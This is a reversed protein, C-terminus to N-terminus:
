EKIFKKRSINNESIVEVFYVGSSLSSIDIDTKQNTSKSNFELEGLLNYIKIQTESINETLILTLYDSAPNPFIYFLTEDLQTNIGTPLASVVNVYVMSNDARLLFYSVCHTNTCGASDTITLCITYFGAAAYTHSPFPLTDNPSGDGWNWSYQLPPTGSAMNVAFYNHPITDPFLNFFASCSGVGVIVTDCDVCGYLDTVCVAYTGQTLGTATQTNQIPSTYWTYYYPPTGATVTATASGDNCLACTANVANATVAFGACNTSDVFVNANCATCGHGDTVCVTYTGSALGTATQTTQIPSTFWTYTYPAFGNAVNVTALGNHCTDCTANTVNTTLQLNCGTLYCNSVDLPMFYVLGLSINDYGDYIRAATSLSDPTCWYNNSVDANSGYSTTYQLDYTTNGCIRNCYINNQSPFNLKI